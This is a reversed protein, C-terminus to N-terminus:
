VVIDRITATQRGGPTLIYIYLKYSGPSLPLPVSVRNEGSVLTVPQQVSALEEQHFDAIRYVTVQIFMDGTEGTCTIPVQLTGNDYVVDGITSTTCGAGLITAALVLVVAFPVSCRDPM